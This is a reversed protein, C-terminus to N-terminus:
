ESNATTVEESSPKARAPQAYLDRYHAASALVKRVYGRTQGFHVKAIFEEPADTFCYRAWLRSQPEGANYAALIREARGDFEEALDGLYAAGLAVSIEPRHLDQAEVLDIDHDLAVRRATPLIFQALGRAAAGSFADADYRSEERIVGALLFPDVDHKASERFMLYGYRLPYLLRRYVPAWFPEPLRKPVRKKLVEAVYLSRHTAGARALMASGAVALRPVRLPFQTQVRGSAEAFLGFALLRDRPDGGAARWLPWDTVPEPALDVFARARADARWGQRLDATVRDRAEGEPLLLWADFLADVEGAALRQPLLAESAAGLQQSGAVRREATVAYPHYVDLRRVALYGEAAEDWREAAEALRARWFAIEIAELQRPAAARDLWGGARDARGQALDSAALFLYARAIERSRGTRRLADAEVLAEREKGLLWM